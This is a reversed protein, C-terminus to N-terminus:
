RKAAAEDFKKDVPETNRLSDQYIELAVALYERFQERVEEYREESLHPLLDRLTTSEKARIM